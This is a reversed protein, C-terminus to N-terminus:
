PNDKKTANRLRTIQGKAASLRRELVQARTETSRWRREFDDRERILEAYRKAILETADAIRQLSGANIDEVTGNGTWNKVSSGRLTTM